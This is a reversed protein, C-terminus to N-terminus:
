RTQGHRVAHKMVFGFAMKIVVWNRLLPQYGKLLDIWMKLVQSLRLDLSMSYVNHLCLVFDWIPDTKGWTM